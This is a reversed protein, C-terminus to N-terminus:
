VHSANRICMPLSMCQSIPNNFIVNAQPPSMHIRQHNQKSCVIDHTTAKFGKIYICM